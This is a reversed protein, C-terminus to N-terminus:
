RIEMIGSRKLFEGRGNKGIFTNDRAIIDGRSITMVPLGTVSFGEYGAYDVNEHMNNKTIVTKKNPDFLVLDADAGVALTGKKPYMGFLKAPNTSTIEVFKNLSIRGKSVGESFIIAMRSEIGPFGNPCKRFDSAGMEKKMAYNFSCHDTGVTSITGLKLGRWLADQNKKERLPPAMVYKIGDEKNYYEEDLVLYQPCTEAYVNKGEYIAKEVHKLGLAESLHVIYIPANGALYAIDIVRNVAEAECIDPRSKAHWIPSVRGTEAYLNRFYEITDHNEAHVCLIGGLEKIRILAKLTDNDNFKFGYTMYFKLSPIGYDVLTKMEKLISEDIYQLVGHFGYDIVAKGDAYKHYEEVRSLLTCGNAGFGMHDVISTTGGCAAAITGTEFDDASRAIGVDINLHTHVDIGGPMLILGKADIVEIPEINKIKNDKNDTNNINSYIASIKGNEILMDAKYVSSADALTANKILLSGM